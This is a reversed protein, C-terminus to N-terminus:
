EKKERIPRILRTKNEFILEEIDNNFTKLVNTEKNKFEELIDKKTIRDTDNSQSYKKITGNLMIIKGGRKNIWCKFYSAKSEKENIMSIFFVDDTKLKDRISSHFKKAAHISKYVSCYEYLPFSQISDNEDDYLILMAQYEM